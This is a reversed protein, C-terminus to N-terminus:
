IKNEVSKDGGMENKSEVPGLYKSTHRVVDGDRYSTRLYKYKRGNITKIEIYSM